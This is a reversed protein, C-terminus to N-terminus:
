EVPVYSGGDVPVAVVPEGEGGDVAPPPPEPDLVAISLTLLEDDGDICAHGETARGGIRVVYRAGDTAARWHDLVGDFADQLAFVVDRVETPPETTAVYADVVRKLAAGPDGTPDTALAFAWSPASPESRDVSDPQQDIPVDVLVDSAPAVDTATLDTTDSM